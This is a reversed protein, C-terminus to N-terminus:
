PASKFSAISLRNPIAPLISPRDAFTLNGKNYVGGFHTVITKTMLSTDQKVSIDKVEPEKYEEGEEMM